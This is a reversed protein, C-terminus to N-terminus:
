SVSLTFTATTTLKTPKTSDSESVSLAYNGIALSLRPTGHIV